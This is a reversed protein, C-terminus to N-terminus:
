DVVAGDVNKDAWFVGDEITLPFEPNATRLLDEYKGWSAQDNELTAIITLFYCSRYFARWDCGSKETIQRLYRRSVELEGHRLANKALELRVKEAPSRSLNVLIAATDADVSTPELLKLSSQKTPDLSAQYLRQMTLSVKKNGAEQKDALVEIGLNDAWLGVISPHVEGFCFQEEHRRM